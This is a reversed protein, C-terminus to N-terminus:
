WSPGLRGRDKKRGAATESPDAVRAAAADEGVPTDTADTVGDEGSGGALPWRGNDSVYRWRALGNRLEVRISSLKVSREVDSAARGAIEQVTSGPHEVLVREVFWVPNTCTM